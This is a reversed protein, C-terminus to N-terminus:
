SPPRTFEVGERQPDRYQPGEAFWLVTWRWRVGCRGCRFRITGRMGPPPAYLGLSPDTTIVLDPGADLCDLCYAGNLSV